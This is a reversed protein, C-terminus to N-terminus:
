PREPENDPADKSKNAYPWRHPTTLGEPQPAEEQSADQYGQRKGPGPTEGLDIAEPHAHTLDQPPDIGANDQTYEEIEEERRQPHVHAEAAFVGHPARQRWLRLTITDHALWPGSRVHPM